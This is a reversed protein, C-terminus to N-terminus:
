DTATKLPYKEQDIDGMNYRKTDQAKALDVEVRAIQDVYINNFSKGSYQKIVEDFQGTRRLLDAKIGIYTEKNEPDKEAAILIDILNLCRKRCEIADQEYKKNTPHSESHDDCDWAANLFGWFVDEQTSETGKPFNWLDAVKDHAKIIAYKIFEQAGSNKPNIGDCTKYMETGLFEKISPDGETIDFDVYGCNSCHQLFMTFPFLEPPRTNLDCAGFRSTSSMSLVETEAGCVGCKVIEQNIMTM